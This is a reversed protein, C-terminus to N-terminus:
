GETSYQDKSGSCRQVQGSAYEERTLNRHGTFEPTNSQVNDDKPLYKIVIKRLISSLIVYCTVCSVHYM